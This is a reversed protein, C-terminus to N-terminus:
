RGSSAPRVLPALATIGQSAASSAVAGAANGFFGSFWPVRAGLRVFTAVTEGPAISFVHGLALVAAADNVLEVVYSGSDINTFSFQGAENALTVAAVKGSAVDRLRLRAGPIPSHNATWANGLIATGRSTPVPLGGHAMSAVVLLMVAVILAPLRIM